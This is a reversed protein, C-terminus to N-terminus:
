SEVAVAFKDEFIYNRVKEKIRFVRVNISSVTMGTVQSIEKSSLHNVYKLFYIQKDVEGLSDLAKRAADANALQEERMREVIAQEYDYGDDLDYMDDINAFETRIDKGRNYAMCAFKATAMLWGGPNPHSELIDKRSFALVFVDQVLDDADTSCKLMARHNIYSYIKHYNDIYLDTFFDQTM